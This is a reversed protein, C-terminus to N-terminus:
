LYMNGLQTKFSNTKTLYASVKGATESDSMDYKESLSLVVRIDRLLEEKTALTYGGHIFSSHHAQLNIRGHYNNEPLLFTHLQQM